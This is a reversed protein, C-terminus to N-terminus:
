KVCKQQFRRECEEIGDSEKCFGFEKRCKRCVKQDFVDFSPLTFDLKEQKELIETLQKIESDNMKAIQEILSRKVKRLDQLLVNSETSEGFVQVSQSLKEEEMREAFAKLEDTICGGIYMVAWETAATRLNEEVDQCFRELSCEESSVFFCPIDEFPCVKDYVFVKIKKGNELLNRILDTNCARDGTAIMM